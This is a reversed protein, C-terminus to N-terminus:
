RKRRKKECIDLLEKVTTKETIMKEKLLDAINNILTRYFREVAKKAFDEYTKDKM